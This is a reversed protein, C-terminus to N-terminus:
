VIGGHLRRRLGRAGVRGGAGIDRHAQALEHEDAPDRHDALRRGHQHHAEAEAEVNRVSAASVATAMEAASLM